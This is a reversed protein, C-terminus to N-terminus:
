KDNIMGEVTELLEQMLDFMPTDGFGEKVGEAMIDKQVTIWLDVSAPEEIQEETRDGKRLLISKIIRNSKDIVISFSDVFTGKSIVTKKM